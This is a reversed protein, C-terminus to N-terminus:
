LFNGFRSSVVNREQWLSHNNHQRAQSDNFSWLKQRAQCCNPPTQQGPGLHKWHNSFPVPRSATHALCVEPQFHACSHMGVSLATVFIITPLGNVWLKTQTERTLRAWGMFFFFNNFSAHTRSRCLPGSLAGGTCQKGLLCFDEKM